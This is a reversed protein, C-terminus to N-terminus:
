CNRSQPASEDRKTIGFYALRGRVEGACIDVSLGVLEAIVFAFDDYKFSVIGITREACVMVFCACHLAELLRGDAFADDPEDNVGDVGFM